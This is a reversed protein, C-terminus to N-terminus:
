MTDLIRNAGRLVEQQCKAGNADAGSSVLAADLNAGFVSAVIARPATSAAANIAAAGAYAFDPAGEAQCHQLDRDATRQQRQAVKGGVDNTLCAQATLTDGPDGLKEVKGYGANRVCSWTAKGQTKVVDVGAKTLQNLCNQQDSSQPAAWARTAVLMAVLTVVLVVGYTRTDRAEDTLTEPSM